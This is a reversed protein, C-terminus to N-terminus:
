NVLRLQQHPHQVAPARQGVQGAQLRRGQEPRLSKPRVAQATPHAGRARLQRCDPGEAPVDSDMRCGECREEQRSATQHLLPQGVQPRFVAGPGEM